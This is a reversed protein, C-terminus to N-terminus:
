RPGGVPLALAFTSGQGPASHALWLRGGHMEILQRAIALGLGTGASALVLADEGRYFRDFLRPQDELAVGIGTDAVEIIVEGAAPNHMARLSIRGGAHSYNFANDALNMIVQTVRERDAWVAPLGPEAEAVLEMPKQNDEIRGQLTALVDQMVDSISTPRFTLQVRGSEIRSIDLLDNVLLSLRDANSKIVDLFRSQDAHLPGAAGMLLLDAYGKISTMPTRLEHSVNTVFESKLRDVEVERTIDRIVSVSGLYEDNAIVPALHVSIIKQNDLTIQQDVFDGPAYSSPNRGWREVTGAGLGGAGGYLGVFETLPRGVVGARQLGLIRECAVNFLIVAGDADAVLVGDAIGELIARSKTAEVQQGRLMGGLREAQDRILRYLEANNIAAGVQNAAALVLRLQEEDFANLQPSTLIMAGLADENAMLPVVLASRQEGGLDPLALWRPDEALNPIVAGQRAKLAWGVLGETRKFPAPQGGPPLPTARGLAARYILQETELDVLFISGRDAKIAETVLQLARTLVLDLDLSSSLETTVQLLTEVREREKQLEATRVAVRAELEDAFRANDVAGAIQGAITEALSVEEATFVRDPQDTDLGITGIVEGRTLLPIIVLCQTNRAALMAHIPETLPHEFARPLLLSRGTEIVQTSSPNNELPILIGTADPDSASRSYDAVVTLHTREPNLLAIGSNRAGFIQVMERATARLM